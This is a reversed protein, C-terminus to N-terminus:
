KIIASKVYRKVVTGDPNLILTKFIKGDLKSVMKKGLSAASRHVEGGYAVDMFGLTMGGAITMAKATRIKALRRQEKNLAEKYTMGKKDMSKTMRKVRGYGYKSNNYNYKSNGMLKKAKNRTIDKRYRIKGLATLSGDDNQYRRVGWKMGLIGHHYLEDTRQYTWM